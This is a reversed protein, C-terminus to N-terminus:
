VVIPIADDKRIGAEKPKAYIREWDQDNPDSNAIDEEYWNWTLVKGNHAIRKLVSKAIIHSGIPKGKCDPYLCQNNMDLKKLTRLFIDKFQGYARRDM